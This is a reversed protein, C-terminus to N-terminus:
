GAVTEKEPEAEPEQAAARRAITPALAGVGLAAIVGAVASFWWLVAPGAHAYVATGVTLASFRAVGWSWQFAGQYRGRAHEPAISQIISSHIGGISAEGLSWLVVTAAYAWATDAVGTLAVGIAILVGAAM